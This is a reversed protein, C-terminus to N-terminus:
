TDIYFTLKSSYTKSIFSKRILTRYITEYTGYHNTIKEQLVVVDDLDSIHELTLTGYSGTWKITNNNIIPKIKSVFNQYVKNDKEDFLMNDKIDIFRKDPYIDFERNFSILNTILPYVNELNMSFTVKEKSRDIIVNSAKYNGFIEENDNIIPVSHGMSRNVLMNYRKEDNFYDKTYKGAGFDILFLEDKFGLVFNGVDNHNHSDNNKGAKAAFLFGNEENIILWQEDEFYKRKFVTDSSNLTSNTWILNRSLEAWRYCENDYLVSVKKTYPLSVSFHKKCYCLLGTPLEAITSDAFQVFKGRGIEMGVPFNAINKLLPNELYKNNKFALKYKEAFYCYYGFGYAWYGVGEVCAGDNKFGKLYSELCTDVKEFIQKQRLPNDGLISIAAMGLSSGIVASWNNEKDEFDWKKDLLPTFVRNNIEYIIRDKIETSFFEKYLEYFEALTQATEASFLDICYRANKDYTNDKITLHAPLAWTYESCVQWIINELCEIDRKNKEILMSLGMVSLLRRREFYQTEFISRNGEKLYIQYGKLDISPITKMKLIDDKAALIEEVLSKNITNEIFKM